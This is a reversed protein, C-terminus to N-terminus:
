AKSETERIVLNYLKLIDSESPVSDNEDYGYEANEDSDEFEEDKVRYEHNEKNGLGLRVAVREKEEDEPTREPPTAGIVFTYAEREDSDIRVRCQEKLWDEGCKRIQDVLMREEREKLMHGAGYIECTVAIYLLTTIERRNWILKEIYEKSAKADRLKVKYKANEELSMEEETMSECKAIIACDSEYGLRYNNMLWWYCRYINEWALRQPFSWSEWEDPHKGNGKLPFSKYKGYLLGNANNM